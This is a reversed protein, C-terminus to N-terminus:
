IGRLQMNRTSVIFIHAEGPVRGIVLAVYALPANREAQSLLHVPAAGQDSLVGALRVRLPAILHHAENTFVQVHENERRAVIRHM